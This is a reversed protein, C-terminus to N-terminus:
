AARRMAQYRRLQEAAFQYPIKQRAPKVFHGDEYVMMRIEVPHLPKGLRRAGKRIREFERLGVRTLGYRTPYCPGFKRLLQEAEAIPVSVGLRRRLRGQILIAYHHKRIHLRARANARPRNEVLKSKWYSETLEPNYARWRRLYNRKWERRHGRERKNHCDKCRARLLIKKTKRVRIVIMEGTPRKKRCRRCRHKAPLDKLSEFTM